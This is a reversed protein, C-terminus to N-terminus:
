KRTNIEIQRHCLLTQAQLKLRFAKDRGVIVGFAAGIATLLGVIVIQVVNPSDNSPTNQSLSLGAVLVAAVLFTGIGFIAATKIVIGNAERYLADAHQQLIDDDYVAM